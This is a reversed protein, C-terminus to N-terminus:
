TNGRHSCPSSPAVLREKPIGRQAVSNRALKLFGAHGGVPQDADEAVQRAQRRDRAEGREPRAEVADLPAGAGRELANEGLLAVGEDLKFEITEYAM